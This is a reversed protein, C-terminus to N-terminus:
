TMEINNGGRQEIAQRIDSRLPKLTDDRNNDSFVEEYVINKKARKAMM